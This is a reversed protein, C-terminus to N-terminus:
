YLHVIIHANDWDLLDSLKFYIHTSICDTHSHWHTSAKWLIKDVSSSATLWHPLHFPPFPTFKLPWCFQEYTQHAGQAGVAYAPRLPCPWPRSLPCSLEPCLPLRRTQLIDGRAASRYSYMAMKIQKIMNRNPRFTFLFMVLECNRPSASRSQSNQDRFNLLWLVAIM